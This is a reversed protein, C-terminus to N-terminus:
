PGGGTLPEDDSDVPWFVRDGWLATENWALAFGGNDVFNEAVSYLIFDSDTVKYVLPADSYPDTPVQQLYGEAVLAALSRPWQGNEAQRALVALIAVM